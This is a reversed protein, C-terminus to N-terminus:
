DISFTFAAFSFWLPAPTIVPLFEANVDGNTKVMFTAPVGQDSAAPFYFGSGFTPRYGEPLTFIKGKVGKSVRGRLEIQGNPRRRYQPSPAGQVKKWGNSMATDAVYIWPEGVFPYPQGTVEDFLALRESAQGLDLTAGRVLVAQKIDQGQFNM